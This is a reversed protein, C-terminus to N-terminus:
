DCGILRLVPNKRIVSRRSLNVVETLGSGNLKETLADSGRQLKFAMEEPYLLRVGFFNLHDGDPLTLTSRDEPLLTSFDIMAGNLRSEEVYPEQDINPITHGPGFWTGAIHPYRALWKLLGIPWFPNDPEEDEEASDLNAVMEGWARPLGIMLEARSWEVPDLDPHTTMRIDGMGSTVYVWFDRAGDPPYDLVDLHILDSAIEHLVMEAEGFVPKLHEQILECNEGYSEPASWGNTRAKSKVIRSGGPTVDGGEFDEGTM